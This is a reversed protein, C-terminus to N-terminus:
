KLIIVFGKALIQIINYLWQMCLLPLFRSSGGGEYVSLVMAIIINTTMLIAVLINTTMITVIIINTTMIIAIIIITTM